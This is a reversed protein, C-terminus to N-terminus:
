TLIVRDFKMGDDTEETDTLRLHSQDSTPNCAAISIGGLAALADGTNYLLVTSYARAPKKNLKRSPSQLADPLQSAMVLTQFLFTCLSSSSYYDAYDECSLSHPRM